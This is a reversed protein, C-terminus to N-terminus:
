VPVVIPEDSEIVIPAPRPGRPKSPPTVTAAPPEEEDRLCGYFEDADMAYVMLRAAAPDGVESTFLVILWAALAEPGNWPSRAQWQDERGYENAVAVHTIVRQERSHWVKDRWRITWPKM